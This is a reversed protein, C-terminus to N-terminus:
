DEEAFGTASPNFRKAASTNSYRRLHEAFFSRPDIGRQAAAKIAERAVMEFEQASMVPEKGGAYQAKLEPSQKILERALAEPSRTASDESDTSAMRKALSGARYYDTQAADQEMQARHREEKMKRETGAYDLEDQAAKNRLVLGEIGLEEKRTARKVEDLEAATAPVEKIVDGVSNYHKITGTTPDLKKETVQRAKRAEAREEARISEEERLKDLFKAKFVAGGFQQLGEGLGALLGYNTAM